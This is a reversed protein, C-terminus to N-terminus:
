IVIVIYIYWSICLLLLLFLCVYIHERHKNAFLLLPLNDAHTMGPRRMILNFVVPMIITATTFRLVFWHIFVTLLIKFDFEWLLQLIRTVNIFLWQYLCEWQKMHSLNSEYHCRRQIPTQLSNGLQQCEHTFLLLVMHGDWPNDDVRTDCWSYWCGPWRPQLDAFLLLLKWLEIERLKVILWSM